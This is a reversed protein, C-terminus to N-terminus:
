AGRRFFNQTQLWAILLAILLSVLFTVEYKDSLTFLALASFLTFLAIIVLTYLFVREIINM